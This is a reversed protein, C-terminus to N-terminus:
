VQIHLAVSGAHQVSSEATAAHVYFSSTGPRSVIKRAALKNIMVDDATRDVLRSKSLMGRLFLKM